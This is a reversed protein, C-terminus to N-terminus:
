IKRFVGRHVLERIHQALRPPTRGGDVLVGMEVNLTLAFETLNASSVLLRQEDALAFKAHLLGYRGEENRPRQDPPWAYVTTAPTLLDAIGRIQDFSLRGESAESSELVLRVTVGRDVAERLAKLVAPVRHVAFCFVWIDRAASGILELLVQETRRVPVEPSAPGTWVLEVRETQGPAGVVARAAEIALALSRGTTGQSHQEWATLMAALLGRGSATPVADVLRSRTAGLPPGPVERLGRALRELVDPPLERVLHGLLGGLPARDIV